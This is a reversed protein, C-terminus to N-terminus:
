KRDEIPLYNSKHGVGAGPGEPEEGGASGGTSAPLRVPRAARPTPGSGAVPCRGAAPSPSGPRPGARGRHHIGTPGRRRSGGRTRSSSSATARPTPTCVAMWPPATTPISSDEARAKALITCTIGDRNRRRTSARAAIVTATGHFPRVEVTSGSSRVDMASAQRSM